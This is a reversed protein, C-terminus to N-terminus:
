EVIQIPEFSLGQWKNQKFLDYFKRSVLIARSAHRAYGFIEKSLVMDSKEALLDATYQFPVAKGPGYKEFGSETVYKMHGTMVGDIKLVKVIDLQCISSAIEKTKHIIVPWTRWGTIQQEELVPIIAKKVFLEETWFLSMFQKNTKPDDKIEFPKIQESYIGSEFDYFQHTFRTSYWPDEPQPYGFRHRPYAKFWQAENMEKRSYELSMRYLNPKLFETVIDWGPRGEVIDLVILSSGKPLEAAEFKIQNMELAKLFEPENKSNFSIHFKKKM